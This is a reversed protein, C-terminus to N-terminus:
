PLLVKEFLLLIQAFASNTKNYYAFHTYLFQCKNMLSLISFINGVNGFPKLWLKNKKHLQVICGFFLSLNGMSYLICCNQWLWCFYKYIFISSFKHPYLNISSRVGSKIYGTLYQFTFKEHHSETAIPFTYM